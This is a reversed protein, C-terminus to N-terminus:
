RAFSEIQISEYQNLISERPNQSKKEWTLNINEVISNIIRLLASGSNTKNLLRGCHIGWLPYTINYGQSTQWLQIESYELLNFSISSPLKLSFFFVKPKGLHNLKTISSTLWAMVSVQTMIKIRLLWQVSGPHILQKSKRNRLLSNQFLAPFACMLLFSVCIIRLNIVSSSEKHPKKFATTPTNCQNCKKCLGVVGVAPKRKWDCKKIKWIEM